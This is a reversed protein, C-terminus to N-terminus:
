IPRMDLQIDMQEVSNNAGTTIKWLIGESGSGLVELNLNTRKWAFYDGSDLDNEVTYDDLFRYTTDLTATAGANYNWKSETYHLLEIDFGSDNAAARGTVEFGTILFDHNANDWYKAWGYNCLLDPGSQKEISVQGIFKKSTEYWADVAGDDAM